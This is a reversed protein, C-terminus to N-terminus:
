DEDQFFVAQQSAFEAVTEDTVDPIFKRLVEDVYIEPMGEKVADKIGMNMRYIYEKKPQDPEVRNRDIYVLMETSKPTDRTNPPSNRQNPWFDVTLNEKTYAFPVGENVDLREEDEEQLSYVLGWTENLTGTSYNNKAEVVNAYGRDNILWYYGNLRAIGLYKSTPCRKIMQDKWLNSGYGFYITSNDMNSGMGLSYVNDRKADHAQSQLCAVLLFISALVFCTM